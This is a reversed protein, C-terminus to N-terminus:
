IHMRRRVENRLRKRKLITILMIDIVVCSTLVVASWTIYFDHELFNRILLEIGVSLVAIESFILIATSLISTRFFRIVLTFVLILITILIIIPLALYFFWHNVPYQFYVIGCYLVIAFGDFLITLYISLKSYLLVPIFFIWLLICAGIIYLSWLGSQFVFLNLIGSAAATAILIVSMLIATDSRKVPDINGRTRPYPTPSKTDVPEAPNLVLTHCLPCAPTTKDLEVGCNVCYSM